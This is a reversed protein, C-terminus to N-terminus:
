HYHSNDEEKNKYVDYRIRQKRRVFYMVCAISSCIIMFISESFQSTVLLWATVLGTIIAVAMWSIELIRLM